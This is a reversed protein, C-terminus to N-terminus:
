ANKVGYLYATSDQVITASAASALSISTIAVNSGPNWLGAQMTMFAETQNNESVGDLSTSKPNTSTYNSIYFSFNGYTSPTANSNAVYPYLNSETYSVAASGNARITRASQNATSGNLSIYLSDVGSSDVRNTRASGVLCLDTFTSPIASFSITSSGGSGVTVASILEFTNAM